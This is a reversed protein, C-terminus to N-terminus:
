LIKGTDIKVFKVDDFEEALSKFIPATLKCPGCWNAMFDVLVPVKSNTVVSDFTGNELEIMSGKLFQLKRMVPTQIFYGSAVIFICFFRLLLLMNLSNSSNSSFSEKIVDSRRKSLIAEKNFSLSFTV